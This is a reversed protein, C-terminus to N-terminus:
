ALIRRSQLSPPNEQLKDDRLPDHYCGPVGPLHIVPVLNKGVLEALNEPVSDGPVEPARLEILIPRLDERTVRQIAAPAELCHDSVNLLANAAVPLDGPM